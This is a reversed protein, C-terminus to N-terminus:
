LWPTRSIARRNLLDAEVTEFSNHRFAAVRLPLRSYRAVAAWHCASRRDLRGFTGFSTAFSASLCYTCSRNAPVMVVGSPLPM